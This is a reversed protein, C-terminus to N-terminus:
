AGKQEEAPANKAPVTTDVGGSSKPDFGSPWQTTSDYTARFDCSELEATAFNAGELHAGQFNVRRLSADSFDASRLDADFFTTRNADAGTFSAARLDCGQLSADQLITLSFDAGRLSRYTLRAGSLDQGRMELGNLNKDTVFGGRIAAASILPTVPPELLSRQRRVAEALKMEAAQLQAATTADHLAKAAAEVARNTEDVVGGVRKLEVAAWSTLRPKPGDPTALFRLLQHRIALPVNPDLTRDLYHTTIQHEQAARAVQITHRQNLWELFVKSLGSLAVTAPVALAVYGAVAQITDTTM